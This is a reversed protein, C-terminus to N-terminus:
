EGTPAEEAGEPLASAGEKGGKSAEPRPRQVLREGKPKASTTTGPLAPTTQTVPAPCETAPKKPNAEYCAPSATSPHGSGKFNACHETTFGAACYSRSTWKSGYDSLYEAFFEEQKKSTLTQSIQSRVEALSKSTEPNLKVPEILLFNKEYEVPGVLQVPCVTRIALLRM